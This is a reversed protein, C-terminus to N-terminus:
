LIGLFEGEASYLGVGVTREEWDKNDVKYRMRGLWYKQEGGTSAEAVISEGMNLDTTSTATVLTMDRYDECYTYSSYLQVIVFVTSPFLTFDNRVTTWVKGDGGNLSISLSTYIGKTNVEEGAETEDVQVPESNTDAKALMTASGFMLLFLVVGVLVACMKIAKKM